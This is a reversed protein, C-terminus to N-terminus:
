GGRLEAVLATMTDLPIFGRVMQNHFVFSPTGSIQLRQALARNEQIIREVEPLQMQAEIAAQDLGLETSVQTLTRASVGSRNAMLADHVAEYAADGAVMKTAIAFRSALVSGDGLIPFEKVILRINPDNAL